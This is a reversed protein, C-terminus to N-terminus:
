AVPFSPIHLKQQNGSQHEALPKVRVIRNQPVIVGGNGDFLDRSV